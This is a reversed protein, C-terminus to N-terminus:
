VPPGNAWCATAVLFILGSCREPYRTAFETLLTGVDVTVVGCIVPRQAGVADLVALCDQVWRDVPTLGGSSPRDSLGTGRCDFTILRSFSALRRWFRAVAPEEWIIDLHSWLGNTFVLDRPGDGLVQYTPCTEGPICSTPDPTPTFDGVAKVISPGFPTFSLGGIAIAAIIAAAGAVIFLQRPLRM